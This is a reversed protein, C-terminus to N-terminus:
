RRDAGLCGGYARLLKVVVNVRGFLLRQTEEGKQKLNRVQSRRNDIITPVDDGPGDGTRDAAQQHLQGPEFRRGGGQM